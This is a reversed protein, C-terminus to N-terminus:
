YPWRNLGLKLYYTFFVKRGDTERDKQITFKGNRVECYM